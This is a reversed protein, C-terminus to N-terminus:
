RPGVARIRHRLNLGILGIALCAWRYDPEPVAASIANIELVTLPDGPTLPTSIIAPSATVSAMSNDALVLDLNTPSVSGTFTASLLTESDLFQFEPPDYLGPGLDASLPVVETIVSAGVQFQFTVGGSFTLDTCVQFGAPVSCGYILGTLNGVGITDIGGIPVATDISVYGIPILEAQLLSGCGMVLLLAVLAM